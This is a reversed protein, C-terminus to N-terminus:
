AEKRNSLELKAEELIVEFEKTFRECIGKALHPYYKDAKDAIAGLRVKGCYSLLGMGVSGKGTQPPFAYYEQIDQNAFQIPVTPGPVNTFVGHFLGTYHDWIWQPLNLHGVIANYFANFLRPMSSSKVAWMEQKVQQLLQPTALDQISFFGFHGSVVNRTSWDMPKRLSLPILLTAYDDKRSHIDQELYHKICRAIVALMVDNLTSGAFAQRVTRIDAISVDESWAMEKQSSQEEPYRFDHRVWNLTPLLCLFFCYADHLLVMCWFYVIQLQMILYALMVSPGKKFSYTLQSSQTKKLDKHKEVKKRHTLVSQKKIEELSSNMSTTSLLGRIFGEGDAICHHAKWFIGYANNALGSIAHIEWLPKTPDFPESVLSSCLQQLAETTPHELHHETVNDMPMWDKYTPQAWKAPQILSPIISIKRTQPVLRFRPYQECLTQIAERMADKDIASKFTWLSTVTMRRRPHEIMRFLNDMGSLYIDSNATITSSSAVNTTMPPSDATTIAATATSM